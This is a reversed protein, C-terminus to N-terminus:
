PFRSSSRSSKAGASSWQLTLRRPSPRRRRLPRSGGTEPMALLEDDPIAEAVIDERAEVPEPVPEAEVPPPEAAGEFESADVVVPEESASAAALPSPRSEVRGTLLLGLLTREVEAPDLPVLELVQRASAIGDIRTLLYGETLTLTREEAFATTVMLPQDLDGLAARVAEDQRMQRVAELILPETAVAM